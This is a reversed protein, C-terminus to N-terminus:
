GSILITKGLPDASGFIKEASKGTLVIGQPSQLCTSKDGVLIDFSFMRFFTSDAYLIELNYTEDDSIVAKQSPVLRVMEEIAPFARIFEPGAPANISGERIIKNPTRLNLAVRYIRGSDLHFKDFSTEVSIWIILMLVAAIGISLGAINIGSYPRQSILSRLSNNLLIRFM